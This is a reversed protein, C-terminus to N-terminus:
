AAAQRQHERIEQELEQGAPTLRWKNPAGQGHGGGTNQVLNHREALQAGRGQSLARRRFQGSGPLM